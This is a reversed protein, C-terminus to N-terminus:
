GAKLLASLLDSAADRTHWASETWAREREGHFAEGDSWSCRVLDLWVTINLIMRRKMVNTQQVPPGPQDRSRAKKSIQQQGHLKRSFPM